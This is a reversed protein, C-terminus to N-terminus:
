QIGLANMVRFIHKGVGVREGDVSIIVLVERDEYLNEQNVIATAEAPLVLVDEPGAPIFGTPGMIRTKTAVDTVIYEATLPQTPDGNAKLFQMPVDVTTGENYRNMEPEMFIVRPAMTSILVAAASTEGLIITIQQRADEISALLDALFAVQNSISAKLDVHGQMANSVAALTDISLSYAIGNSVTALTDVLTVLQHSVAASLDAQGTFQNSVSALLDISLSYEGSQSVVALLDALIEIQNSVTESIDSRGEILNSVKGLTDILQRRQHSVAAKTDFDISVQNSILAQLDVPLSFQNSVRALLNYNVSILASTPVTTFDRVVSWDIANEPATTFDRVDSWLLSQPIVEDFLALMITKDSLSVDTAASLDLSNIDYGQADLVTLAVMLNGTATYHYPDTEYSQYWVDAPTLASQLLKIKADVDCVVVTIGQGALVSVSTLLQANYDTWDRYNDAERNFSFASEYSIVAGPSNAAVGSMASEFTAGWEAATLQGDLEQNGSEQFHVWSLLARDAYSLYRAYSDALSCGGVGSRYVSQGAAGFATNIAEPSSHCPGEPARGSTQSDGWFGWALGVDAM